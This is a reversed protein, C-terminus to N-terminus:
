RIITGDEAIKYGKYDNSSLKDKMSTIKDNLLIISNNIQANERCEDNIDKEWSNLANFIQECYYLLSKKERNDQKELISIFCKYAIAETILNEVEKITFKGTRYEGNKTIRKKFSENLKMKKVTKKKSENSTAIAVNNNESTANAVNVNESVANATNFTIVETM